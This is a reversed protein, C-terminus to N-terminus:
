PQVQNIHSVINLRQNIPSNIHILSNLWKPNQPKPTKPGADKLGKKLVHFIEAGIRLAEKYNPAGIPVIMFEQFDIPNDAHVGGNLVNMM